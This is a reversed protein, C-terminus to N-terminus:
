RILSGIRSWRVSKLKDWFDSTPIEPDWSWYVMLAEGIIHDDPVFGWYRSDLSNDRNDGLVFYYNREVTYTKSPRDDILVLGEDMRLRHGERGIFTRWQYVNSSDLQITAGKYPVWIPGYHDNSYSTGPSFSYYNRRWHPRGSSTIKGQPPFELLRENVVVRSGVLEVTDGPLGICRKIYNIGDPHQALDKDGPFEFVLVAGREVDKLAPLSLTPIAVKTLPLYRPTRMGYLFKSVFLFDGVLLTNEMSASPIRFAEIVFTKLTFAVLLTVLVAKGYSLAASRLGESGKHNSSPSEESVPEIHNEEGM